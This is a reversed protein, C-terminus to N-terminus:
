MLARKLQKKKKKDKKKNKKNKKHKTESLTPFEKLINVFQKCCKLTTNLERELNDDVKVNENVKMAYIITAIQDSAFEFSEPTLMKEDAILIQGCIECRLKKINTGDDYPVLHSRDDDRGIHNCMVQRKIEKNKKKLAKKLKAKNDEKEDSKKKKYAFVGKVKSM